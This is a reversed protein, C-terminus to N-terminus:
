KFNLFYQKWVMHLLGMSVEIGPHCGEIGNDTAGVRLLKLDPFV